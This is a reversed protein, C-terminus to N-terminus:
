CIRSARFKLRYGFTSYVKSGGGAAVYRWVVAIEQRSKQM